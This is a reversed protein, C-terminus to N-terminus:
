VHGNRKIVSGLSYKVKEKHYIEAYEFVMKKANPINIGAEVMCARLDPLADFRATMEEFRLQEIISEEQHLLSGLADVIQSSTMDAFIMPLKEVHIFTASNYDLIAAEKDLVEQALADEIRQEEIVILEDKYLVLEAELLEDTIEADVMSELIRETLIETCDEITLNNIEEINM